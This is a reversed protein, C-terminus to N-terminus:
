CAQNKTFTAFTNVIKVIKSWFSAFALYMWSEQFFCKFREMCTVDVKLFQHTKLPKKQFTAFTMQKQMVKAARHSEFGQNQSLDPHCTRSMLIVPNQSNWHIVFPNKEILSSAIFDQHDIIPQAKKRRSLPLSWNERSIHWTNDSSIGCYHIVKRSLYGLRHSWSRWWIKVAFM